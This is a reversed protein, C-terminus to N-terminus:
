GAEQLQDLFWAKDLLFKADKIDTILQQKASADFAPLQLL